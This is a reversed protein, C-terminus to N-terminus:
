RADEVVRGGVIVARPKSTAAFPDGDWVVVDARRGVALSGVRDAVGASEAAWITVARLADEADLGEGIEQAALLRLFRSTGGAAGAGLAPRLGAAVLRAALGRGRKTLPGDDRFATDGLETVVVPTKTEALEKAHDALGEGGAITAALGFQRALKLAAAVSADSEARLWTRRPSADKAGLMSAVLDLAPDDALRAPPKALDKPKAYEKERGMSKMAAERWAARDAPTWLSMLDLLEPPLVLKEEKTGQDAARKEEYRAVDRRHREIEDRRDRAAVFTAHIEAFRQAGWVGGSEDANALNVVVPGDGVLAAGDAVVAAVGGFAARAGGTAVFSTVGQRMATAFREDDGRVADAARAEVGSRGSRRDADSIPLASDADIFGPTVVAGKADITRAGSPIAVGVGVAEIKGDRVIVTAGALPPGDGVHVEGGVIALANTPPDDAAGRTALGLASAVGVILALRRRM